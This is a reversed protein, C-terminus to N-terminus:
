RSSSGRSAARTGTRSPMGSPTGTSPTASPAWHCFFGFDADLFTNGGSITTTVTTSTSPIYSDRCAGQPLDSDNDDVVGRHDADPLNPFLYTGDADTTTTAVRTYAGDGHLDVELWVTISPIGTEHVGSRLGNGDMDRWVTDVIASSGIPQYGFDVDAVAGWATDASGRGDCTTCTGPDEDPDQTQTCGSPLDPDTRDVVVVYSATALSTFTYYGSPYAGSGDATVTSSILADVGVDVVGDGGSDEYLYVTINPIGDENGDRTADGDWDYYLTDGLATDGTQYCCCDARAHAGTEETARV